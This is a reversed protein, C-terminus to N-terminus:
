GSLSQLLSELEAQLIEVGEDTLYFREWCATVVERPVTDGDFGYGFQYSLLNAVHVAEIVDQEIPSNHPHHHCNIANVIFPPLSWWEALYSGLETHPAGLVGKEAEELPCNTSKALAVAREYQRPFYAAAALKGMDHLLGAIFARDQKQPDTRFLTTILQRSLTATAYSHQQFKRPTFGEVKPAHATVTQNIIEALALGTVLDTGLVVIAKKVTDVLFRQEFLASNAWNLLAASLGVDQEILVAMRDIDLDDEGICDRVKLYSEPLPPLLPISNIMAQFERSHKRQQQSQRLASRLVEKLEQDIWPKPIIQQTCGDALAAVVTEQRAFGTLFIRVTGPYLRRVENFLAFGSMEPMIVDSVVLDFPHVKLMALADKASQAFHCDWDEDEVLRHLASLISAEDDVFLIRPLTDNM